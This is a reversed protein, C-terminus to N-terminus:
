DLKVPKFDLMELLKERACAVCDKRTRLFYYIDSFYNDDGTAGSSWHSNHVEELVFLPGKRWNGERLVGGGLLNEVLFTVVVGKKSVFTAQYFPTPDFYFRPPGWGTFPNVKEKTRGDQLTSKFSVIPSRIAVGRDSSCADGREYEIKGEFISSEDMEKFSDVMRANINAFLM